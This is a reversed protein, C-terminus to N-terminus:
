LPAEECLEQAVALAAQLSQRCSAVAAFPSTAPLCALARAAAGAATRPEQIADCPLAALRGAPSGGGRQVALRGAQCQPVTGHPEAQSRRGAHAPLPHLARM